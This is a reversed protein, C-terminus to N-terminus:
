QTSPSWTQLWHQGITAIAAINVTGIRTVDQRIWHPQGTTLWTQGVLSVDLINTTGDVNVDWDPISTATQMPIFGATNVDAQGASSNLYNVFDIAGSYSGMTVSPAVSYQLTMLHLYRHFAYNGALINATTPVVGELNVNAIGSVVSADFGLGVYGISWPTTQVATDVNPNGTQRVGAAASTDCAGENGTGSTGGTTTLGFSGLFGTFTQWTGSATDRFVPAITQNPWSSNLQSWNTVTCSYIQEIQQRTLNTVTSALDPNVIMIVADHAVYWDQIQSTTFPTVQAATGFTPSTGDCASTSATPAPNAPNGTSAPPIVGYDNASGNFQNDNNTGSPTITGSSTAVDIDGWLLDCRGTKSGFETANRQLFQAYPYTTPAQSAGSAASVFPFLTTSGDWIVPIPYNIAAAGTAGGLVVTSVAALGAIVHLVGKPIRLLHFGGETL